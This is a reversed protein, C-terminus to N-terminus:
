RGLVLGVIACVAAGVLALTALGLWIKKARLTLRSLELDARHLNRIRQQVTIPEPPDAQLTRYLADATDQYRREVASYGASGPLPPAEGRCLVLCFLAAGGLLAAGVTAVNLPAHGAVFVSSLAIVGGLVATVLNDTHARRLQRTSIEYRLHEIELDLV